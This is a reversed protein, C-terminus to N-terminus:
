KWAEARSRLSDVEVTLDPRFQGKLSVEQHSAYEDGAASMVGTITFRTDGLAGSRAVAVGPEEAIPPPGSPAAATAVPSDGSEQSSSAQDEGPIGPDSSCANTLLLCGLVLPGFKNPELIKM